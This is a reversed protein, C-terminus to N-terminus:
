IEKIELIQLDSLNELSVVLYIVIKFAM